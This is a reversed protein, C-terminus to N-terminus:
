FDTLNAKRPYKSARHRPYANCPRVQLMGRFALCVMSDDTKLVM